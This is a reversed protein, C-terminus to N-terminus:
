WVLGPCPVAPHPLNPHSLHPPPPSRLHMRMHTHTAPSLCWALPLCNLLTPWTQIASLVDFVGATLLCGGHLGWRARRLDTKKTNPADVLTQTNTLNHITTICGHKIGLHEHVVKVVPALCNTTCSAATVIHDSDPNYATQLVGCCDAHSQCLVRGANPAAASSVATRYVVVHCLARHEQV